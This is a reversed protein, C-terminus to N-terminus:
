RQLPRPQKRRYVYQLSSRHCREQHRRCAGQVHTSFLLPPNTPDACLLALRILTFVLSCCSLLPLLTSNTTYCATEGWGLCWTCCNKSFSTHYTTAASSAPAPLPRPYSRPSQSTRPMLVLTQRGERLLVYDLSKTPLQTAMHSPVGKPM